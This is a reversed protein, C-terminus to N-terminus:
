RNLQDIVRRINERETESKAENMQMRLKEILDADHGSYGRYNDRSTYRGMSDRGRRYSNDRAYRMEMDDYSNAQSYGAERMAEITSIDKLIDVMKYTCELDTASMEPKKTIKSLEDEVMDQINYLTNM